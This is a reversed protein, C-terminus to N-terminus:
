DPNPVHDARNGILSDETNVDSRSSKFSVCKVNEETKRVQQVKWTSNVLSTWNKNGIITDMITELHSPSKKVWGRQWEKSSSLHIGNRRASGRSTTPSFLDTQVFREQRIFVEKCSGDNENLPLYTTAWEALLHPTETAYHTVLHVIVDYYALVFELRVLVNLKPSNSKLLTYHNDDYSISVDVRTWFWSSASQIECLM